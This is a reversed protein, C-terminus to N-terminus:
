KEGQLGPQGLAMPLSAAPPGHQGGPARKHNPRHTSASGNAEQNIVDLSFSESRLLGDVSFSRAFLGESILRM